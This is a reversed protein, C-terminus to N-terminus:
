QLGGSCSPDRFGCSNAALLLDLDRCLVNLHAASLERRRENNMCRFPFVVLVVIREAETSNM